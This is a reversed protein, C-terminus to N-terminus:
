RESNASVKQMIMAEAVGIAEPSGTITVKRYMNRQTRILFIFFYLMLFHELAEKGRQLALLSIAEIQFRSGLEM